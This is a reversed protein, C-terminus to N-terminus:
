QGEANAGGQNLVQQIQGANQQIFQMMQEQQLQEPTKYSIHKEGATRQIAALTAQADLEPMQVATNAIQTAIGLINSTNAIDAADRAKSMPTVPRLSVVEKNVTIQLPEGKKTMLYAFRNVIPIVWRNIALDRPLELRLANQSTEGYWQAATPPTKGLQEPKDQFMIRSIIRRRSEADFIAVDFRVNSEIVQPMESGVSRPLWTGPELGGDPNLTGDEEYSVIPDLTKNLAKLRIYEEEDLVRAYPLALFAPGPQWASMCSKEFPIAIIGCSGVGTFKKYNQLKNDIIIGYHWVETTPDTWDRVYGVIPKIFSHEKGQPINVQDGWIIKLESYRMKPYEKFLADYTGNIGRSVLLHALEIEQCDITSDRNFEIMIAMLGVGWNRYCSGVAEYFNSIEIESFIKESEAKISDNIEKKEAENLTRAPEFKVWNDARPTFINNMDAGFDNLVIPLTNDFVDSIEDPNRPTSTNEDIRPKLPMAVRLTDNIWAAALSRDSRAEKIKRLFLKKVEDQTGANSTNNSEEM